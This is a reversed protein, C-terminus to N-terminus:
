VTTSVAEAKSDAYTRFRDLDAQLVSEVLRGIFLRDMMQGLINPVHYSISLKVITTGHRDYFRVAGRNSLGTTSEWQIIQHKIQKTIRSQWSFTFGNSGLRWKSVGPLDDSMEVAEIWKMWRPMQTVDSWLEWVQDIPQQVEIQVTHELFQEM